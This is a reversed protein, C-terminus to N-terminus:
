TYSSSGLRESLFSTTDVFPATDEELHVPAHGPFKSSHSSENNFWTYSFGWSLGSSCQIKLLVLCFSTSPCSVGGVNPLAPDDAAEETSFAM